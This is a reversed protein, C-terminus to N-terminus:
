VTVFLLEIHTLPDNNFGQGVNLHAQGDKISLAVQRGATTGIFPLALHAPGGARYAMGTMSIVTEGTMSVPLDFQHTGEEIPGPISLRRTNM